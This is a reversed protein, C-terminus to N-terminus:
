YELSVNVKEPSIGALLAIRIKADAIVEALTVGEHPRMAKSSAGDWESGNQLYSVPANLVKGLAALNESRPETNGEEWNWVCTTSVGVQKALATKSLRRNERLTRLRSAFSFANAQM